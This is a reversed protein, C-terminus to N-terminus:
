GVFRCRAHYELSLVSSSESCAILHISNNTIDAITGGNGSFDVPINCRVNMHFLRGNGTYTGTNSGDTFASTQHLIVRKSALIRFRRRYELNRFSHTKPAVDNMVDEANLQAGNTQRDLVMLVTAEWPGNSDSQDSKVTFKVVGRIQINKIVIHDGDRESAGTGKIPVCLTNYSAPDMEGGAWGNSIATISKVTDFYKYEIGLLGGTRPNESMVVDSDYTRTRPVSKIFARRVGRRVGKSKIKAYGSRRKRM